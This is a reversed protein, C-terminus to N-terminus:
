GNNKQQDLERMEEPTFLKWKTYLISCKSDYGYKQYYITILTGDSLEVTAPYGIDSDMAEDLLIERDSWTEGGDYSLKAKQGFQRGRDRCAYVMLLVGNDLELLHPPSGCLNEIM